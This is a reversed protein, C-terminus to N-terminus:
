YWVFVVIVAASIWAAILVALFLFVGIFARVGRTKFLHYPLVVFWAIALFFGFDLNPWLLGSHKSDERLWWWVIWVLTVPSLVEVLVPLEVQRAAYLTQIFQSFFTFALLCKTALTSHM